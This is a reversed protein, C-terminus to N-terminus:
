GSASQIAGYLPRPHATVVPDEDSHGSTNALRVAHELFAALGLFFPTVDHDAVELRVVSGLCGGEGFPELDHGAKAGRMTAELQLLHVDVGDDSADALSREHVLECVGVYGPHPVPLAVLVDVLDEVGTD